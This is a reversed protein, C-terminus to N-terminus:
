ICCLQIIERWDGNPNEKELKNVLDVLPKIQYRLSHVFAKNVSNDSNRDEDEIADIHKQLSLVHNITAHKCLLRYDESTIQQRLNNPQDLTKLLLESVDKFDVKKARRINM